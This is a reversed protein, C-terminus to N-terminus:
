KEGGRKSTRTNWDNKASEKTFCYVRKTNCNPCWCSFRRTGNSYHEILVPVKGCKCPLLEAMM